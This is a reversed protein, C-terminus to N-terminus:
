EEDEIDNDTESKYVKVTPTRQFWREIAIRRAEAESNAEIREFTCVNYIFVDYKSM